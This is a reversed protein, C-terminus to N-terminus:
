IVESVAKFLLLQKKSEWDPLRTRGPASQYLAFNLKIYLLTKNSRTFRKYFQNKQEILQKIEKNMWSAARDDCIITENPFPNRMLLTVAFLLQNTWIVSVYHRIGTFCTLQGGFSILMREATTGYQKKMLHFIISSYIVSLRHHCNPPLSPQVGPEMVLNPQSTIILDICSWSSDLLHTLENILKDQKVLLNLLIKFFSCALLIM